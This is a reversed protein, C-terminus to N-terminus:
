DPVKRSPWRDMQDALQLAANIKTVAGEPWSISDRGHREMLLGAWFRITQGALEDQARLVFIPEDPAAKNLCSYPSQIENQKIM